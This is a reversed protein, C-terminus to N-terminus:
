FVKLVQVKFEFLSRCHASLDLACWLITLASEHDLVSSLWSGCAMEMLLLGKLKLAEEDMRCMLRLALRWEMKQQVADLVKHHM